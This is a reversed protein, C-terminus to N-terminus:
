PIVPSPELSTVFADLDTAKVLRSRGVKVSPLEGSRLLDYIRSKSVSLLTAAEDATYCLKNMM